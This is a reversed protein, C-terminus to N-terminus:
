WHAESGWEHMVIRVVEGSQAQVAVAGRHRDTLDFQQFQWDPSVFDALPRFAILRDVDLDFCFADLPFTLGQGIGKVFAEKLTWISFFADRLQDGRLARLQQAEEAPFFREALALHDIARTRDEIDIGVARDVSVALAAIGHSHSLNFHLAFHAGDLIPKGFANATFRLDACDCGLYRSLVTRMMARCLLYMRADHPRRYVNMRAREDPALLADAASADSLQDARFHWIHVDHATIQLHGM